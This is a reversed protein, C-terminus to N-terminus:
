ASEKLQGGFVSRLRDLFSTPEKRAPESTLLSKALARVDSAAMSTPAALLFPKRTRICQIAKSDHRVFGFYTPAKNLFQQCIGMLRNAVQEAQAASEAMNMVLQIKANPKRYWLTKAAAYADVVSTPDPTAILVVEDAAECFAMVADDVGAGTDFILLDCDDALGAIATLFRDLQPGNMNVLAEVGSGGAVLGIGGPGSMVIESLQKEGSLVHQLTYPARAGLVVDLNALGLDADFVTVRRGLQSLAIGLNASLNTKGVGGKGSTIAISKM